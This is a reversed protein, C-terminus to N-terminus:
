VNLNYLLCEDTLIEASRKLRFEPRFQRAVSNVSFSFNHRQQLLDAHELATKLDLDPVEPGASVVIVNNVNRGVFLYVRGYVAQFTQIQSQFLKHDSLVNSVVVGKPHLINEIYHLFERTAMHLPIYENNFADLIVLDYTRGSNSDAEQQVFQRGDLIHVRLTDDPKFFFFKKATEVVEPDIDVVDIEADPFYDHMYRPIVGGGLGIILIRQPNENLLLSAFVLRTYELMHRNLDKLDIRSQKGASSGEGLRLTRICGEEHVRIRNYPSDKKYIM